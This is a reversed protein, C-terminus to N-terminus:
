ARFARREKRPIGVMKGYKRIFAIAERREVDPLKMTAIRLRANSVMDDIHFPTATGPTVQMDGLDVQDVICPMYAPFCRAMESAAVILPNQKM